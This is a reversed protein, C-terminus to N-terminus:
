DANQIVGIKPQSLAEDFYSIAKQLDEGFEEGRIYEVSELDCNLTSLIIDLGIKAPGHYLSGMQINLEDRLKHIEGLTYNNRHKQLDLLKTRLNGHIEDFYEHM